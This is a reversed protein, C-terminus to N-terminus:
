VSSQIMRCLFLSKFVFFVLMFIHLRAPQPGCEVNLVASYCRGIYIYIYVTYIYVYM